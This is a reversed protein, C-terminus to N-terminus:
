SKGGKNRQAGRENSDVRVRQQRQAPRHRAVAAGRNANPEGSAAAAVAAVASPPEPARDPSAAAADDDEDPSRKLVFCSETLERLVKWFASWRCSNMALATAAILATRFYLLM